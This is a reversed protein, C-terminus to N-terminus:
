KGHSVGQLSGNLDREVEERTFGPHPNEEMRKLRIELETEREEENVNPEDEFVVVVTYTGPEIAQPLKTTLTGDEGVTAEVEYHQM